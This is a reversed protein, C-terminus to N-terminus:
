SVRNRRGFVRPVDAVPGLYNHIKGVFNKEVFFKGVASVRERPRKLAVNVHWLPMRIGGRVAIRDITPDLPPRGSGSPPVSIDCAM